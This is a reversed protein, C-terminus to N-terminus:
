SSGADGSGGGAPPALLASLEERLRRTADVLRGEVLFADDQRRCRHVKVRVLSSTALNGALPAGPAFAETSRLSVRDGDLAVLDASGGKVLTLHPM